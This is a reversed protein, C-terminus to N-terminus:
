KGRKKELAWGYLSLLMSLAAVGHFVRHVSGKTWDLCMMFFFNLWLMSTWVTAPNRDRKGMWLLKGRARGVLRVVTSAPAAIYLLSFGIVFAGQGLIDPLKRVFAIPWACSLLAALVALMRLRRENQGTAVITGDSTVDDPTGTINETHSRVANYRLLPGRLVWGLLAYLGVVVCIGLPVVAGSARTHGRSMLLYSSLFFAVSTLFVFVLGYSSAAAKRAVPLSVADDIAAIEAITARKVAAGRQNTFAAVQEAHRALLGEADVGRVFSRWHDPPYGDQPVPGPCSTRVMGGGEFATTVGIRVPEGPTLRYMTAYTRGDPSILWRAPHVSQWGWQAPSMFRASERTRGADRFGLTVLQPLWPEFAADGGHLLPPGVDPLVTTRPGGIRLAFAIAPVLVWVVGALAAAWLVASVM